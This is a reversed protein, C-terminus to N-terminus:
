EEEKIVKLGCNKCKKPMEGIVEYGCVRCTGIFIPDDFDFM